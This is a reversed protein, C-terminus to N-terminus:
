SVDRPLLHLMSDRRKYATEIQLQYPPPAARMAMKKSSACRGDLWDCAGSVGLGSEFLWEGLGVRM